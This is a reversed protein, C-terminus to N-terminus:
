PVSIEGIAIQLAHYGRVGGNGDAFPKADYMDKEARRAEAETRFVAYRVFQRKDHGGQWSARMMWAKGGLPKETIANLM